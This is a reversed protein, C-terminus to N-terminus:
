VWPGTIALTHGHGQINVFLTKGSPSFVAGAFESASSVNLGIPYVVGEPTIGLIRNREGNDECVVVNGFPAITINDCMKMEENSKSEAFLVLKGAVESERETGEWPSPIYKFIQGLQMPGGSSCAFYLEKDGFWIGEGRAFLAAGKGHGRFRLDDEPSLINDMDIWEVEVEQGSNLTHIEWNRTDFGQKGKVALAQLKGGMRLNEKEHPIYRYFLSDGRDETQYVISTAPDVCVAEHNFRGMDTLAIPEARAIHETAPVEFNFGHDKELVGDSKTLDEECTIWSGWPTVGGACNRITGALSLYQKEVEGTTENYIITTTGGLCPKELNGADYFDGPPLHGLLENNLGFPGNDPYEPRLEHNRIIIVRDESLPFTGMADPAGPVLLGDDMKDGKRSIIKYSFGKPLDLYKEPDPVLPGFDTNRIVKKSEEPIFFSDGEKNGVGSCKSLGLFGLSVIGAHKLFVRRHNANTM